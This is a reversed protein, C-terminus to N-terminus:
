GEKPHFYDCEETIALEPWRPHCQVSMAGTLQDKVPVPVLSPPLAKCLVVKSLTGPVTTPGRAHVCNLCCKADPAIDSEPGQVLASFSTKDAM